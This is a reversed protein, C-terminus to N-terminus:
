ALVPQAAARQDAASRALALRGRTAVLVVAALVAFGAYAVIPAIGPALVPLFAAGTAVGLGAHYLGVIPLSRGSANYV